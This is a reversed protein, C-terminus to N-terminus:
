WTSRRYFGAGRGVGSDMAVGVSSMAEGLLEGKKWKEPGTIVNKWARRVERQNKIWDCRRKQDRDHWLFTFTGIKIVVMILAMKFSISRFMSLLLSITEEINDILYCVVLIKCDKGGWSNFNWDIGAVKKVLSGAGATGKRVVFQTASACVTVPEFKSIASAIKAFMRQAPVANDRWNDSRELAAEADFGSSSPGTVSEPSCPDVPTYIQIALQDM